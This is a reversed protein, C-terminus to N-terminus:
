PEFVHLKCKLSLNLKKLSLSIKVFGSANNGTLSNFLFYQRWCCCLIRNEVHIHFDIYFQIFEKCIRRLLHRTQRLIFYYLTSMIIYYWHILYSNSYLIKIIINFTNMKDIDIIRLFLLITANPFVINQNLDTDFLM